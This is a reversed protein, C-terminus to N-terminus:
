LYLYSDSVKRLTRIDRPSPCQIDLWWSSRHHNNQGPRPRANKLNALVQKLLLEKQALGGSVSPLNQLPPPDVLTRDSPQTPPQSLDSFESETQESQFWFLKLRELADLITLDQSKIFPQSTKLPKLIPNFANFELNPLYLTYLPDVDQGLDKEVESTSSASSQQWFKWRPRSGSSSSSSSSDSPSPVLSSLLTRPDEPIDPVGVTVKLSESPRAWKIPLEIPGGPFKLPVVSPVITIRQFSKRVPPYSLTKM